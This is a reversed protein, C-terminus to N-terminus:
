LSWRHKKGPIMEQQIYGTRKKGSINQAKMFDKSVIGQIIEVMASVLRRQSAIGRTETNGVMRLRSGSSVTTISGQHTNYQFKAHTLITSHM